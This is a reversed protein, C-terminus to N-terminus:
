RRGVGEDACRKMIDLIRPYNRSGNFLREAAARGARGMDRRLQPNQVLRLTCECLAEADHLPVVCGTVGDTIQESLAGVNTTVVPLASAMAEMIALPLVDAETPFVFVDARAYLAML